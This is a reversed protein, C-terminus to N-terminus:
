ISNQVARVKSIRKILLRLAEFFVLGAAIVELLITVNMALTHEGMSAVVYHGLSDIGLMAYVLLLILGTIHFGKKLFIWGSVGVATLGMWALYVGVRTWSEPLGPYLAIFEANHIFHVLSALFYLLSLIALLRFGPSQIESM